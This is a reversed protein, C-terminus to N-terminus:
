DVPLFSWVTGTVAFVVSVVLLFWCLVREAGEVKIQRGM